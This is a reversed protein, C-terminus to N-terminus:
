ASEPRLLNTEELKNFENNKQQVVAIKPYIQMEGNKWWPKKEFSEANNNLWEFQM